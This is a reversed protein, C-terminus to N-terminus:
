HTNNWPLPLSWCITVLLHKKWFAASKFFPWILPQSIFSGKTNTEDALLLWWRVCVANQTAAERETNNRVQKVLFFTDWLWKSKRSLKVMQLIASFTTIYLKEGKHSQKKGRYYNFHTLPKPSICCSKKKLYNNKRKKVLYLNFHESHCNNGHASAAFRAFTASHRFESRPQGRLAAIHFIVNADLLAQARKAPQLLVACVRQTQVREKSAPVSSPYDSSPRSSLVKWVFLHLPHSTWHHLFRNYFEDHLFAPVPITRTDTDTLRQKLFVCPQDELWFSIQRDEVKQSLKEHSEQFAGGRAPQLTKEWHHHQEHKQRANCSLTLKGM